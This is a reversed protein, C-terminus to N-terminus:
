AEQSQNLLRIARQTTQLETKYMDANLVEDRVVRMANDLAINIETIDDPFAILAHEIQLMAFRAHEFSEFICARTTRQSDTLIETVDATTNM